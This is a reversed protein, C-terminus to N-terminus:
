LLDILFGMLRNESPTEKKIEDRIQSRYQKEWAIELLEPVNNMMIDPLVLPYSARDQEVKSIQVHREYLM